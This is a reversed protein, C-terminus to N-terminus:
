REIIPRNDLRGLIEMFKRKRRHQERVHALLPAWESARGHHTLISRMKKLYSAATYYTGPNAGALLDDAQQQYIALARDPHTSAVADAV